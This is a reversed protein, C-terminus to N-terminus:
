GSKGKAFLEVDLLELREAIAPNQDDDERLAVELERRAAQLEGRDILEEAKEAARRAAPSRCLDALSPAANESPARTAGETVDLRLQGRAFHRDYKKRLEPQSLVRYAEAGRQFVREVARLTEADAGAHADPHFAAAFAHFARRIASEDASELVGLIEYYSSQDLVKHWALVRQVTSDSM